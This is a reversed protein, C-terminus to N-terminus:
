IVRHELWGNVYRHQVVLGEAAVRGEQQQQEGQGQELIVPADVFILVYELCVMEYGKGSARLWWRVKKKGSKKSKGDKSSSRKM